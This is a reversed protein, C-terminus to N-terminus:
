DSVRGRFNHLGVDHLNMTATLRHPETVCGGNSDCPVVALVFVQVPSLNKSKIKAKMSEM